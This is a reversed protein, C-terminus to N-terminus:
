CSSLFSTVSCFSINFIPNNQLSIHFIFVFVIKLKKNQTFSEMITLIFFIIIVKIKEVTHFFHKTKKLWVSNKHKNEYTNFDVFLLLLRQISGM